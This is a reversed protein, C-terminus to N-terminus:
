SSPPLFDELAVFRYGRGSIEKILEDLVLHSSESALHFLVIAGDELRDMVRERVSEPTSEVQWDLSDITWYMSVYGEEQLLELIRGDREGYPPRFFPRTSVGLLDQIRDEVAQIEEVVEEDSLETLHPHTLTHNGLNFGRDHIAEVADPFQDIWTGTLFFTAPVENDDLIALIEEVYGRGAGGDFTFAIRNGGQPGRSIELPESPSYNQDPSPSPSRTSPLSSSTSESSPSPSVSPTMSPTPTARDTPM